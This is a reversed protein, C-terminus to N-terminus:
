HRYYPLCAPSNEDLSFEILPSHWANYGLKRLRTVLQEGTPSPRTVLITM